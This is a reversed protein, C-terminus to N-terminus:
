GTGVKLLLLHNSADLLWQSCGGCFLAVKLLNGSNGRSWYWHHLGLLAVRGRAGDWHGVGDWM